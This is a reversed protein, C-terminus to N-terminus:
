RRMLKGVVLITVVIGLIIFLWRTATPQPQFPQNGAVAPLGTGQGTIFSLPDFPRQTAASIDNPGSGNLARLANQEALLAQSREELTSYGSNQRLSRLFPVTEGLIGGWISSQGEPQLSM